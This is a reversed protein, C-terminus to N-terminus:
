VRWKKPLDNFQERTFGLEKEARLFLADLAKEWSGPDKGELGLEHRGGYGGYKEWPLKVHTSCLSVRRGEPRDWSTCYGNTYYLDQEIFMAKRDSRQLERLRANRRVRAIDHGYKIRYARLISRMGNLPDRPLVRVIDYHYEADWEDYEYSSRYWRPPGFQMLFPTGPPISHKLAFDIGRTGDRCSGTLDYWFNMTDEYEEFWTQPEGLSDGNYREIDLDADGTFQLLRYWVYATNGIFVDVLPPVWFALGELKLAAKEAERKENQRKEWAAYEAKEEPSPELSQFIGM